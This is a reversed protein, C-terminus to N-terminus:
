FIEKKYKKSCLDQIQRVRQPLNHINKRIAMKMTFPSSQFLQKSPLELIAGLIEIREIATFFM